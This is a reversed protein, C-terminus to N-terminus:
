SANEKLSFELVTKGLVIQDKDHLTSASIPIGNVYTGDPTSCDEIEFRGGRNIILAHRPEIADDKFLYIDAKPSSGLVTTDKYIIFQKGALPGKQMLVWATKTWGEVLGIFLGVFIGITTLGVARSYTAQGDESTLVLSIPDFLLGGILGGLVAGVLGNIIVKKEKLAIGQGIGAPISVISWAAARGMMLVLLAMGTPMEGPLPDEMLGLAIASMIGFVIGTPFLALLGGLFGVGLGVVSSKVARLSNRCILGEAAGLFLGIFAATVPFLLLAALNFEEGIENDDFFPELILWGLFAGVGGCFAMYFWNAYIVRVIWPRDNIPGADRRLFSQLEVYEDVDPAYLEDSTIKMSDSM